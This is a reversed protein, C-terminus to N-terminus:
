PAACVKETAQFQVYISGHYQGDNQCTGQVGGGQAHLHLTDFCLQYGVPLTTDPQARQYVPFARIKGGYAGPQLPGPTTDLRALDSPILATDDTGSGYPGIACYGVGLGQCAVVTTKEPHTYGPDMMGDATFGPNHVWENFYQPIQPPFLLTGSAGGMRWLTYDTYSSPGCPTPLDFTIEGCGNGPEYPIKAVFALNQPDTYTVMEQDLAAWDIKGGSTPTPTGVFAPPTTYMQPSCGCTWPAPTLPPLTFSQWWAKGAPEWPKRLSNTGCHVEGDLRHYLWDDVFVAKVGAPLAAIMDAIFPDASQDGINMPDYPQPQKGNYPDFRNGVDARFFPDPIVAVTGQATSNILLLNVIDPTLASTHNKEAFLVPVPYIDSDTIGLEAKLLNKLPALHLTELNQNFMVLSTQALFDGVTPKKYAEGYLTLKDAPDMNKMIEIARVGSAILVRFGQSAAPDPVMTIIEDVHGVELWSTDIEFPKQVEFNIPGGIKQSKLQNKLASDMASGYYIRGFPYEVGNVTVPPSTELNGFSDYTSGAGPLDDVATDPKALAKVWKDLARDRPSNLAVDLRKNAYFAAASAMEFEDQVWIDQGYTAGDITELQGGLLSKLTTVMQVNEISNGSKLWEADMVWVRETEQLHHDLFYPSSAIRVSESALSTSNDDILHLTLTVFRAPTSIEIELSAGSLPIEPCTVTASPGLVVAGNYRVTLNAVDGAAALGIAKGPVSFLNAPVDLIYVEDDGPPPSSQYYDVSGNDDDDDQNPLIFFPGYPPPNPLAEGEDSQTEGWTGPQSEPTVCGAALATVLLVCRGIPKM